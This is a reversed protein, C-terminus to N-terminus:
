ENNESHNSSVFIPTKKLLCAIQIFYNKM